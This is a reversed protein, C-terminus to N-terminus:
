LIAHTPSAEVTVSHSRTLPISLVFRTGVGAESFVEITGGHAEVIRRTLVLGLGVGSAARPRRGRYFPAFLGAVEDATMGMGRDAIELHLNDQVRHASVRVEAESYKRANDLLNDIARRLLTPDAEVHSPLDPDLEVSLARDPASQQFRERSRNLLGQLEVRELRLHPGPDGAQGAALELRATTLVDEVLGRLERLDEDLDTLAAQPLAGGEQAIDMAVQIRALPTRLEHSINALLEKQSRVLDTIREAMDDFSDALTGLEDKRTLGARATLDGAGFAQTARALHEIPRVVTRSFAVSALMVAFLLVLAAWLASGGPPAPPAWELRLVAYGRDPIRIAARGTELLLIPERGLRALAEAPLPRLAGTDLLSRGAEDYVTVLLGLHERWIRAESLAESWRADYSALREAVMRAVNTLAVPERSKNRSPALLTLGLAAVLFASIHFLHVRQTLRLGIM